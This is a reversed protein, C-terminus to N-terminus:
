PFGPGRSEGARVAVCCYENSWQPCHETEATRTAPIPEFAIVRGEHGVLRSFQLAYYGIDAGVDLAIMGARTEAEIAATVQPEWTRNKYLARGILNKRPSFVKLKAGNTQIIVDRDPFRLNSLRQAPTIAYRLLFRGVGAKRLFLRLDMENIAM